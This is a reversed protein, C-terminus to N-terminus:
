IKKNIIKIIKDSWKINYKKILKNSEQRTHYRSYNNIYKNQQFPVIKKSLIKECNIKFMKNLQKVLYDHTTKFTHKKLNRFKIRRQLLIDGQDFKSSLLHISIGSPYNEYFSWVNPILGRGYPLFSIHLNLAIEVLDFCNKKVLYPYGSTIIHTIKLKKILKKNIKENSNYVDYKLKLFKCIFKNRQNPGLLLIRKKKM